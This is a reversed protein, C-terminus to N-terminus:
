IGLYTEKVFLITKKLEEASSVRNIELSIYREYGAVKMAAAAISHEHCDPGPPRLGPNAIHCHRIHGAYLSWLREQNEREEFSSKLDIHLAFYDHGVAKVLAMGEEANNIFDTYQSSLPEILLSVNWYKLREAIRYCSETMMYFCDEKNREGIRRSQASGLIMAPIGLIGALRGMSVIYDELVQRGERSGFFYLDPRTYTLSHMAPLELGYAQVMRKLAAGEEAGVNEPCTWFLSASLEMGHCGTEALLELFSPVDENGWAINSVSLKVARM